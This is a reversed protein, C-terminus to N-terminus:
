VMQDSHVRNLYDGKAQIYFEGMLEGQSDSTPSDGCIYICQVSKSKRNGWMCVWECVDGWGWGWVCICMCVSMRAGCIFVFVHV